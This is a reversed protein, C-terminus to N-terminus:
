AVTERHELRVPLAVGWGLLEKVGEGEPVGEGLAVPQPVAVRLRLALALRVATRVGLTVWVGLGHVLSDRLAVGQAVPVRDLVRDTLGEGLALAQAEGMSEVLPEKLTHEEALAEGERVLEGEPLWLLVWHLVALWVTDLEAQVETVALPAGVGDRVCDLERVEECHGLVEALPM